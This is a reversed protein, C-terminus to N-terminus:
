LRGFFGQLPCQQLEANLGWVGMHQVIQHLSQSCGTHVGMREHTKRQSAESGIERKPQLKLRLGMAASAFDMPLMQTATLCRM